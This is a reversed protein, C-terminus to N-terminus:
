VRFRDLVAPDPEFGIGPRDPVAVTGKEPLPISPDLYAAPEIYLHEFQECNRRAAMLHLTAWYGPGFYPAHPMVASGHREALDCVKLFESIGGVKTVSPQIYRIAPATRAFEVATCANEGSAIPVGFDRQLAGLTAADDPPFVPEEVWYLDLRKMEPLIERAQDMSWNCNVDTSMKTAAGAGERGAEIADLAIEHLKVTRYGESVVKSTFSRVLDPEGYRVLSAYAPLTTRPSDALLAALPVGESKAKLDWLAIDVASIAFVTIGYRGHLHLRQQLELNLAGIDSVDRGVLLPAVMDEIAAVTARRCSYAFGDGWGVLGNETELRVLVFDLMTWKTPMLGVGPSGDEFPIRLPIVDVSKIKM